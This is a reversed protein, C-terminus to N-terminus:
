PDSPLVPDTAPRSAHGEAVSLFIFALVFALGFLLMEFGVIVQAARSQDGAYSYGFPVTVGAPHYTGPTAFWVAFSPVLMALRSAMAYIHRGWWPLGGRLLGERPALAPRPDFPTLWVLLGAAVFSVHDAAHVLGLPVAARHVPPVYWVYSVVAWVSLAGLPSVLLGARGAGLQLLRRHLARRARSPLGLLLLPPAFDSLLIHQAVHAILLGRAGLSDLPSLVAGGAFGLGSLFAFARLWERGSRRLLVLWAVIAAALLVVVALREFGTGVAM